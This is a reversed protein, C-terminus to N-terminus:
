SLLNCDVHIFCLMHKIWLFPAVTLFVLRWSSMSGAEKSLTLSLQLLSLDGEAAKIFICLCPPADKVATGDSGWEMTKSGFMYSVQCTDTKGSGSSSLLYSCRSSSCWKWQRCVNQLIKRYSQCWFEEIEGQSSVANLLQEQLQLHPVIWLYTLHVVPHLWTPINQGTM